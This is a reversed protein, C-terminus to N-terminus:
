RRGTWTPTSPSPRRGANRTGAGLRDDAPRRLARGDPGPPAAGPGDKEARDHLVPRPGAGKGRPDHGPRQRDGPVDARGEARERQGRHPGADRGRRRRERRHRPHPALPGGDHRSSGGATRARWPGASRKSGRAKSSFIPRPRESRRRSTPTPSASSPSTTSRGSRRGPRTRPEDPALGRRRRAQARAPHVRAPLHHQVVGPRRSLRHGPRRPRPHPRGRRPRFLPDGRFPLAPLLRHRLGGRRRHGPRRRIEDELPPGASEQLGRGSVARPGSGAEFLGLIHVEEATTMEIGPLVALGTGAAAEIVAAANETTNHDTVAILDLGAERARGVVARPSMTLEGCPSLCTHIHLDARLRRLAMLEGQHGARLAKRRPRVDGSRAGLLPIKERVAQELTEPAPERGNVLVIGALDKLVAVAVINPHVQMTVWLDGKRGHGIVDSLLDSAYGGLVPRDLPMGATFVKLDLRTALDSLTM